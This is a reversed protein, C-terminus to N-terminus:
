RTTPPCETSFHMNGERDVTHTLKCPAKGPSPKRGGEAARVAASASPAPSAAAPAPPAGIGADGPAVAEPSPLESASRSGSLDAAAPGADLAAVVSKQRIGRTQWAAIAIVACAAAAGLALTRAKRPPSAPRTLGVMSQLADGSPPSVM